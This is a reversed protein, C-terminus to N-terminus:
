RNLFYIKESIAKRRVREPAYNPLHLRTLTEIFELALNVLEIKVISHPKIDLLFQKANHGHLGWRYITKHRPNESKIEQVSGGWKESYLYCIDRNTNTLRTAISNPQKRRTVHISGEGDFFGAAYLSDLM